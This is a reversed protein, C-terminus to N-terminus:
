EIPNTKNILMPHGRGWFNMPCNLTSRTPREGQIVLRQEKLWCKSHTVCLIFLSTSWNIQTVEKIAYSVHICTWFHLGNFKTMCYFDMGSVGDHLCWQGLQLTYLPVYSEGVLSMFCTIYGAFTQLFSVVSFTQIRFIDSSVLTNFKQTMSWDFHGIYSEVHFKSSYSVDNNQVLKRFIKAGTVIFFHFSTWNGENTYITPPALCLFRQLAQLRRM